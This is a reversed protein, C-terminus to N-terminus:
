IDKTKKSKEGNKGREFEKLWTNELSMQDGFEKKNVGALFGNQSTSSYLISEYM